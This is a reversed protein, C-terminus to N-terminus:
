DQASNIRIGSYTRERTAAMAAMNAVDRTGEDFLKMVIRALRDAEVATFPCRKFCQQRRQMRAQTILWDDESRPTPCHLRLM